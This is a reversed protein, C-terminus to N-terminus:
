VLLKLYEQPYLRRFWAVFEADRHRRRHSWYTSDLKKLEASERNAMWKPYVCQTWIMRAIQAPTQSYHVSRHQSLLYYEPRNVSGRREWHDPKDGLLLLCLYAFSTVLESEREGEPADVARRLGEIAEELAAHHIRDTVVNARVYRELHEILRRCLRRWSVIGHWGALGHTGRKGQLFSFFYEAHISIGVHRARWGKQKSARSRAARGM